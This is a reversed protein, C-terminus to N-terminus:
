SGEFKTENYGINHRRSEKNKKEWFAKSTKEYCYFSNPCAMGHQKACTSCEHPTEKKMTIM